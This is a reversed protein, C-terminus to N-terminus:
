QRIEEAIIQDIPKNPQSKALSLIVKVKNKTTLMLSIYIIVGPFVSLFTLFLWNIVLSFLILAAYVLTYTVLRKRATKLKIKRIDSEYKKFEEEIIPTLIQEVYM